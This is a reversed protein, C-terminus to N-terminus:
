DNTIIYITENKKGFFFKTRILTETYDLDLNKTFLSNKFELEDIKNIYNKESQHLNKLIEKKKMYSFLGREGDLLNFIFYLIVFTSILLFYNKKIIKYM